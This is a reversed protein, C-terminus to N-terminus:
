KILIKGNPLFEYVFESADKTGELIEELSQDTFTGTIGKVVPNTRNLMFEVGYWREVKAIFEEMTANEFYLTGDKWALVKDPDFGTVSTKNTAESYTAMEMPTLLISKNQSNVLKQNKNEVSVLGTKVAVLIHQGGPYAKINFSTGLVKTNLNGSRVIFPRAKDPRVEFFAEGELRVIRQHEDFPKLYSIKSEANLKVKSGDPLFVTRKEGRPIQKEIHVQSIEQEKIPMDRFFLFLVTAIIFPLIVAAVKLYKWTQFIVIGSIETRDDVTESKINEWLDTIEEKNFSKEQFSITKLVKKAQEADNMKEPRDILWSEWFKGDECDSNKVWSYFSEDMLFDGIEYYEFKM